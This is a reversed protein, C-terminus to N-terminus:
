GGSFPFWQILTDSNSITTMEKYLQRLDPKRSHHYSLIRLAEDFEQRLEKSDGNMVIHYNVPDNLAAYPALNAFEGNQIVSQFYFAPLLIAMYEFGALRTLANTLTDFKIPVSELWINDDGLLVQQRSLRNSLAQTVTSDEALYGVRGILGGFDASPRKVVVGYITNGNRWSAGLKVVNQDVRRKYQAPILSFDYDDVVVADLKGHILDLMWAISKVSNSSTSPPDYRVPPPVAFRSRDLFDGFKQHVYQSRTVIGFRSFGAQRLRNFSNLDAVNLRVGVMATKSSVLPLSWGLTDFQGPVYRVPYAIALRDKMLEDFIENQTTRLLTNTVQRDPLYDLLTDTLDKFPISTLESGLLTQNVYQKLPLKAIISLTQREQELFYATIGVVVFLLAWSFMGLWNVRPTRFRRAPSSGKIRDAVRYYRFTLDEDFQALFQISNNILRTWEQEQDHKLFQRSVSDKPLGNIDSVIGIFETLEKAPCLLIWSSHRFLEACRERKELAGIGGNNLFYLFPIREGSVLRIFGKPVIAQTKQIKVQRTYDNYSIIMRVNKM